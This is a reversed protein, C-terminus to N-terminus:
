QQCRHTRKQCELRHKLYETAPIILPCNSCKIGASDANKDKAPQSKM